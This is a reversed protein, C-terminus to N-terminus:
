TPQSCTYTASPISVPNGSTIPQDTTEDTVWLVLSNTADVYAIHLNPSGSTSASATGSKAAATLRQDNGVASWSFDASSVAITALTNTNVTAFSDGFAYTSLLRVQTAATRTSDPNRLHNAHAFKAM